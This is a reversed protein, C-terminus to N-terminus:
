SATNKKAFLFRMALWWALLVFLTLGFAWAPVSELTKASFKKVIRWIKELRDHNIVIITLVIAICGLYAYLSNFLQRKLLTLFLAYASLAMMVGGVLDLVLHQKVLVTSAIILCPIPLMQWFFTRHHRAFVLFAFLNLSVHLSPFNNYKTDNEQQFRTLTSLGDTGMAITKDMAVPFLKFIAFSITLILFFCATGWYFEAKKKLTFCPSFVFLYGLMYFIIFLPIQPLWQDLPTAFDYIVTGAAHKKAWFYGMEFYIFM